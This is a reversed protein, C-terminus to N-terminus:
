RELRLLGVAHRKKSEKNAYFSVSAATPTATVVDHLYSALKPLAAGVTMVDIPQRNSKMELMTKYIRENQLDDFDAPTLTLNELAKGNTLLIAGIVSQEFHTM